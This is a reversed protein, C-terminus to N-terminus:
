EPTVPDPDEGWSAIRRADEPHPAALGLWGRPAFVGSRDRTVALRDRLNEFPGMATM